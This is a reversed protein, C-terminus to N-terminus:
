DRVESLNATAVPDLPREAGAEGLQVESLPCCKELVREFPGGLCTFLEIALFKLDFEYGKPINDTVKLKLAYDVVEGAISKSLAGCWGM